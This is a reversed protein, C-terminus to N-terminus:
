QFLHEVHMLQILPELEEMQMVQDPFEMLLLEVAVVATELYTYPQVLVVMWEKLLLIVEQMEVVKIPLVLLHSYVVEVVQDELNDLEVKVVLDDVVLLV